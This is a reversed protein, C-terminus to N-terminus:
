HAMENFRGRRLSQDQRGTRGRGQVQPQRNAGVLSMRLVSPPAASFHTRKQIKEDKQRGSKKGQMVLVAEDSTLYLNYGSSRGSFKVRADLQGRNAEFSLPLNAYQERIRAQNSPDPVSLGSSALTVGESPPKEAFSQGSRDDSKVAIEPVPLRRRSLDNTLAFSGALMAFSLSLGLLYKIEPKSTRSCVM